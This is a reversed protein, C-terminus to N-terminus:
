LPHICRAAQTDNTEVMPITGRECDDRRRPCRPAFRCGEFWNEVSPVLGEIGIQRRGAIRRRPICDILARTYPHVPREILEHAPGTEMLVGGYLVGVRDAYRHVLSLDHSIFLISLGYTEKLRVLLDLIEQQITVDLATTPEDAILLPPNNALAMAIMVRQRMGGSMEHPYMSRVAAPNAFQVDALLETVREQKQRRSLRGAVDLAEGIQQEVTMLPNLSTMPEQFIMSVSRGRLQRLMAPSATALDVGDLKLTGDIRLMNPAFLRMISRAIVTKGSGSEGVLAYLEGPAVSFNVNDVIKLFGGSTRLSLSLNEALLVPSQHTGQGGTAANQPDAAHRMHPM